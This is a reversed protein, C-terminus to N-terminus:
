WFSWAALIYKIRLERSTVSFIVVYNHMLVKRFDRRGGDVLYWSHGHCFLRAYLSLLLSHSPGKRIVFSCPFCTQTMSPWFLIYNFQTWTRGSGEPTESRSSERRSFYKLYKLVPLMDPMNTVSKIWGALTSFLLGSNGACFTFYIHENNLLPVKLTTYLRSIGYLEMTRPPRNKCPIFVRIRLIRHEFRAEDDLTM